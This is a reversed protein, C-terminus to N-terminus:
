IKEFCARHYPPRAPSLPTAGAPMEEGQGFSSSITAARCWFREIKHAELDRRNAMLTFIAASAPVLSCILIAPISWACLEAFRHLSLM